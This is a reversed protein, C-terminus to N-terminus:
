YWERAPHKPLIHIGSMLGSHLLTHSRICVYPRELTMHSSQLKSIKWETVRLNRPQQPFSTNIKSIVSQAFPSYDIWM